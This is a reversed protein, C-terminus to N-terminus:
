KQASDAYLAKVVDSRVPWRDAPFYNVMVTGRIKKVPDVWAITGAAGGWGYTGKSAGGPVDALYVSGGAGYGMPPGQTGGTAGGVGQFTVGPPLLNSLALRVTQPKMVRVGDLTGEDVLMHLFRDYDRASSVLGAGGYPFSPPQTFASAKAPDLPTLTTGAILYNDAFRGIESQPVTWYSSRMKLPDFLRTQVFREFSVGSVKEVVAATLDLGISYSWKTGPQAILPAQAVRRAFDQLSKPRALKAQAEVAANIAGPLLGLREYEKLLPGKASINYSLGATHTLLMRITIPRTAPVSELSTDPSTLVRMQNFEPYIDSLPQDLKLKGDEILMMAAMATIPKTMSYVRWLTDPGAKAADPDLSISGASVFLTPADGRGFAGVIGPMKKTSVYGDFLARIAAHGQAQAPRPVPQPSRQGEWAHAAVTSGVALALAIVVKSRM